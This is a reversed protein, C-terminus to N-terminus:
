ASPTSCVEDPDEHPQRPRYSTMDSVLRLLVGVSRTGVQGTAHPDPADAGPATGREASHRQVYPQKNVGYVQVLVQNSAVPFM